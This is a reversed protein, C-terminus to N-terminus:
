GHHPVEAHSKPGHGDHGHAAHGDHVHKGHGAHAAPMVIKVESMAVFPLFRIFLLFLTLFLGFSGIFTCADVWTPNFYAWSSPLYDRSLSTIVIVFREFWMGINTTISIVFVVVLNRRMRRSWFLQPILVNCTIMIWYAWAYNGFARNVFAFQEVQVGGYWAMFFEMSYGYGVMMGTAMLIRCMVDIHNMTIINGLNFFQRAPIMLTLVMAFGSFIAGAVFYPPFITTHWGPVQSVAFDFSVVSHVSFVLPTALAALILYAREYVHWHRSSGTWGMSLAGYSIRRWKNTARDRLTALDPIMGMYWFV